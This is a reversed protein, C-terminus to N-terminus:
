SCRVPRAKPQADGPAAAVASGVQRAELMVKSGDSYPTESTQLVLSNAPLAYAWALSKQHRRVRTVRYTYLLDDATWVRVETGILGRGSSIQSALLIPLFMGTRAHAFLYSVGGAGPAQFVPPGFYEAVNCLPFTSNKPIPVVPLDIRLSPIAVRTPLGGRSVAISPSPTPSPSPSPTESPSPEAASPVASATAATPAAPSPTPRPPEACAAVALALLLAAAIRAGRSV